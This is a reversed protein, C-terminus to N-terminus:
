LDIALWLVHVPVCTYGLGFTTCASMIKMMWLNNFIFVLFYIMVGAMRKAESVREM